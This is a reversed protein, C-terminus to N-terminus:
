FPREEEGRRRLRLRVFPTWRYRRRYIREAVLYRGHHSNWRDFSLWIM